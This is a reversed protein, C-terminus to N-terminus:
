FSLALSSRLTLLLPFGSRLQLQLHTNEIRLTIWLLRSARKRDTGTKLSRTLTLGAKLRDFEEVWTQPIYVLKFLHFRCVKLYHVQTWKRSCIQGFQVVSHPRVPDPQNVSKRIAEATSIAAFAFATASRNSYHPWAIVGRNRYINHSDGERSTFEFQTNSVLSSGLTDLSLAWTLYLDVSVQVVMPGSRLWVATM